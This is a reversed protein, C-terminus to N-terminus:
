KVADKLADQCGRVFDDKDSIDTQTKRLEYMGNCIVDPSQSMLMQTAWERGGSIRYGEEYSESKGACGVVSTLVAISAAAAVLVRM